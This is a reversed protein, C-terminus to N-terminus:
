AAAVQAPERYDEQKTLLAWIQRAMKNALAIAVLMKPKRELMRALWSGPLIGRRGMPTLRTMAGMILLRRIDGQGAKSVKGLRQKGGSSHQQPVIGLWAAFDRGSKFIDMPPAFTEVALATLPGVGPITRLRRAMDSQSSLAVTQKTKTDIRTATEAIQELLDHCECLVVPHLGNEPDDLFSQIRSLHRVGVPFSQGQEYLVGRLANIMETRHRVLRERSRFLSARAQQEETKPEVFRMEPRQAAIVIAEADAADNKQRKVFPRVYQPAILKVEHGLKSMVHAWYHAGGCAEMVVIAPAHESMFREFQPRSLQKRFKVEGTMSAGHVQFVSKALDVGIMTDM